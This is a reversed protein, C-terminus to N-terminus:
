PCVLADGFIKSVDPHELLKNLSWELEIGVSELSTTITGREHSLHRISNEVQPILIHLATVFDWELASGIAKSYFVLRGDPIFSSDAFLRQLVRESYIHNQRLKRLAPALYGHVAVFRHMQAHQEMLAHIAAEHEDPNSSSASPKMGVKRGAGDFIVGPIDASLPAREILNLTESRLKDPKIPDWLAVFTLLADDISKGEVMCSAAAAEKSIDIETGITKMEGQMLKAASALRRHLEPVRATGGPIQRFAYIASEWFSHAALHSGSKEFREAEEVFCEAETEKALNAEAPKGLKQLITSQLAYHM